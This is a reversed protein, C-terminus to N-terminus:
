EQVHCWASQTEHGCAKQNTWLAKTAIRPISRALRLIATATRFIFLVTFQFGCEMWCQFTKTISKKILQKSQYNLARTLYENM